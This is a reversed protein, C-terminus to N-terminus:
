WKGAQYKIEGIDIKVPTGFWQSVIDAIDYLLTYPEFRSVSAIDVDVTVHLVPTGREHKSSHQTAQAWRFDKVTIKSIQESEDCSQFSLNSPFTEADVNECDKKIGDLASQILQQILDIRTETLLNYQSETIIYKM